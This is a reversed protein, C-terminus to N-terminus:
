LSDIRRMIDCQNKVSHVWLGHFDSEHTHMRGLSSIQKRSLVYSDRYWHLDAHVFKGSRLDAVTCWKTNTCVTGAFVEGYAAVRHELLQVLKNILMPSYREVHEWKHLPKGPFTTKFLANVYLWWLDDIYHHPAFVAILDARSSGYHTIPRRINGIFVSDDEIVWVYGQNCLEHVRCQLRAWLCISPEHVFYSLLNSVNRGDRLKRTINRGRARFNDTLSHYWAQTDNHYWSIHNGVGPIPWAIRPFAEDIDAVTYAMTKVRLRKTQQREHEDALARLEFTSLEDPLWMSLDTMVNVTAIGDLQQKLLSLYRAFCTSHVGFTM